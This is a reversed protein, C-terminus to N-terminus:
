SLEKNEAKAQSGADARGEAFSQQAKGTFAFGLLSSVLVATSTLDRDIAMSTIAVIVAALVCIFQCIRMMSVKTDTRFPNEM